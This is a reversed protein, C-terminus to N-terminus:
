PWSGFARSADVGDLRPGAVFSTAYGLELSEPDYVEVGQRQGSIRARGTNGHRATGNRASM